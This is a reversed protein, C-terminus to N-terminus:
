DRQSKSLIAKNQIMKWFDLHFQFSNNKLIMEHETMPEPDETNLKLKDSDPDYITYFEPHFQTGIVNKYESHVMMEVVKGDLSTGAVIMGAGPNKIAQHHSSVVLPFYDIGLSKRINKDTIDIRHFSHSNIDKEPYINKYYNRHINDKEQKLVDEVYNLGYIDSPIDQYMDGGTAVNMSQMGLCIGLVMYDPKLRMFAKFDRNQNGGLLHFLFSLEFLHRNPTNIDVTLETKQGYYVPPIDWGGFFIIGDSNDFIERFDDTCDNKKYITNINLNGYIERNLIYHLKNERIYDDTDSYRVESKTYFVSEFEILATDLVHTQVLFDISRIYFVGPNVLVIKAKKANSEPSASYVGSFYFIYFCILFATSRRM